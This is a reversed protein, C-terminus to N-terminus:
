QHGPFKQRLATRSNKLFPYLDRLSLNLAYASHDFLRVRQAGLLNMTRSVKPTSANNHLVPLGNLRPGKKVQKLSNSLCENTFRKALITRGNTRPITTHFGTKMFFIASMHKGVPRQTRTKALPPSNSAVSVQCYRKMEPDYYYFRSEDGTVIDVVRRSRGDDFKELMKLCHDVHEQKQAETLFCPVSRYKIM